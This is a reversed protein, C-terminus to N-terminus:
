MQWFFSYTTNNIEGRMITALFLLIHMFSMGIFFISNLDKKFKEWTYRLFYATIIMKFSYMYLFPRAFIINTAIAIQIIRGWFYLQYFTTFNTSSFYNKLKESYLILILDIVYLVLVGLGTNTEVVLELSRFYDYSTYGLLNSFFNFIFEVINSFFGMRGFIVAICFLILQILVSFTYDINRSLIPYFVLLILASSHILSLLLVVVVYAVAKRKLLLSPITFCFICFVLNQRIVNMWALFYGGAIVVFSLYPLIKVDYNKFTLFLFLIQLGALIGFYVSYHVPIQALAFTFSSFGLEQRPFIGRLADQYIYFYALFDVGVDYRMGM